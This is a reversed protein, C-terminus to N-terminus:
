TKQGNDATARTEPTGVAPDYECVFLVRVTEKIIVQTQFGFCLDPDHNSFIM